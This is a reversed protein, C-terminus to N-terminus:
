TNLMKQLLGLDRNNVKGNSDLDVATLDFTKDSLDDDNLYLQLLGLDRNNVKGNGDADGYLITPATSYGCIDCPDSHLTFDLIDGCDNLCPHGHGYQNHWWEESPTHGIPDVFDYIYYRNCLTCQYHTYGQKTCTPATVTAEYNCKGYLYRLTSYGCIACAEYADWGYEFCTPEKAPYSVMQHELLDSYAFNEGGCVTCRQHIYGQRDCTSEQKEITEWKHDGWVLDREGKGCRLCGEYAEWGAELCTPEKAPCTGMEHGFAPVEDRMYGLGCVTCVHRTYGPYSCTAEVVESVVTQCEGWVKEQTSYGCRNCVTYADWGQEVCSPTKAPYHTNDHGTSAVVDDLYYDGCGPCYHSTYGEASCTPHVLLTQYDHSHTDPISITILQNSVMSRIISDPAVGFHQALVDTNQWIWDDLEYVDGTVYLTLPNQETLLDTLQPLTLTECKINNDYHYYPDDASEKPVWLEDCEFLIHSRSFWAYHRNLAGYTIPAKHSDSDGWTPDTYYWKGDLRVLNWAHPESGGIGSLYFCPIGVAQMLLQYARAYGACVSKGEVLAGYATQDNPTFEYSNVCVLREFLIRSKEYDSQDALDYTLDNVRQLVQAEIEPPNGSGYSWFQCSLRDEYLTDNLDSYLFEGTGKGYYDPVIANLVSRVVKLEDETITYDNLPIDVGDQGSVLGDIIHDYIYRLAEGNDLRELLEGGAYLVDDRQPQAYPLPETAAPTDTNTATEASAAMPTWLTLMLSLVMLLATIKKLKM